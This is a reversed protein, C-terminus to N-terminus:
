GGIKLRLRQEGIQFLCGDEVTVQPVRLWLGNLSKNNQAQWGGQGYRRWEAEPLRASTSIL